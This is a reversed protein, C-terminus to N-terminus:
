GAAAPDRGTFAILKDFASARDPPEVAAGFDGNARREPTILKEAIGMVYAALSDPVDAPTGTAATYDWAHVLLGFSLLAALTRVPTENGRWAVSGDLGHRLHFADLTPRGVAILQREVSEEPDRPPLDAGLAEGVSAITDVLHETLQDVNFDESATPKSSDDRSLPHVIKQLERLSAEAARLEDTPPSDPGPQLDSAM